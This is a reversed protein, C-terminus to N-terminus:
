IYENEIGGQLMKIAIGRATHETATYCVEIGNDEAVKTTTPGISIITPLKVKNEGVLECFAKVASGSAFTVYDVEELVRLLDDKRRTDIVNEYIGIDDYSIAADELAKPISNVGQNARYIMVHDNSDLSPIWEKALCSGLYESPIKDPVYGYSKLADGTKRGVVAFKLHAIKRQDMEQEKLIEFFHNVGNVSTFVVWTTDKLKYISEIVNANKIPISEILSFPIVEMGSHELEGKLERAFARTGTALVRNKSFPKKQFWSLKEELKVVDGIVTIAPTQIKQKEVIDVITELTGVVKRQRATTGREIVAAPTMKDKGGAILQTTIEKLKGLGMLFVLTGEIGAYTSYDLEDIKGARDHGTIVHFSSAVERHTVPIGAYSLASYSSSIGPIVEFLLGANELALAEEGGRGFIYPDGGKLRVVLDGKKGYQVLTENIQDQIMHHKNSRKGAYILKADLKAENLLSQSILNDYVIVDAKRILELGKQTILGSDGPGAGVLYVPQRKIKQALKTAVEIPDSGQENEYRPHIGDQAFMGDMALTEGVLRCYAACPANCGSDLLKMYEREATLMISASNSHIKERIEELDGTRMEVALIGQGPAPIFLESNLPEICFDEVEELGLRELGAAALIIGDYEGNKLKQLRTQVNGRILHINVHPNIQKMQIERRLSSTGIVSGAELDIAKIGKNTVLVDFPNAREIVAGICLGEPLEMPMDKASHVALDITNNLLADELEKTFVGKGGFTSLSRDLIVDGKTSMPIVEIECQPFKELILTRVLETQVMALKSKRTGIRIKM